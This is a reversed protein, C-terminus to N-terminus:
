VQEAQAPTTDNQAPNYLAAIRATDSIPEPPDFVIRGFDSDRDNLGLADRRDLAAISGLLLQSVYAIAMADRRHIRKRALQRVLNGLLFNVADPTSFNEVDGLLEAANKDNHRQKRQQLQRAHHPCLESNPNSSFLRCHRGLRDIHRCPTLSNLRAPITAPTSTVPRCTAIPQSIPDSAPPVGGGTKVCSHSKM